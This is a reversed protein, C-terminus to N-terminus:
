SSPTSANQSMSFTLSIDANMADVGTAVLYVWIHNDGDLTIAAGGEASSVENTTEPVTANPAQGLWYLKANNVATAGEGAGKTLTGKLKYTVNTNGSGATVTFKWFRVTGDIEEHDAPRLPTMSALTGSDPTVTLDGLVTISGTSGSVGVTKSGNDSWAAYSVAGVGIAAAISATIIFAKIAKKM